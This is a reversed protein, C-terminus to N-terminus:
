KSGSYRADVPSGNGAESTDHWLLSGECIFCALDFHIGINKAATIAVEARASTSSFALFTPLVVTWYLATSGM